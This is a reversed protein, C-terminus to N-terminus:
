INNNYILWCFIDFRTAALPQHISITKQSFIVQERYKEILISFSSRVTIKLNLNDILNESRFFHTNENITFSVRVVFTTIQLM